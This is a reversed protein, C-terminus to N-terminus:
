KGKNKKVSQDGYFNTTKLFFHLQYIFLIMTPILAFILYGEASILLKFIYGIFPITKAQNINGIVYSSSVYRNTDLEYTTEKENLKELDVVKAELITKRNTYFNFFLISDDKKIDKNKKMIVLSGDPITKLNEASFISYRKTTPSEFPNYMFLYLSLIMVLFLYIIILIRTIRKNMNEGYFTYCLSSTM